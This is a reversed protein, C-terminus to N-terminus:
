GLDRPTVAAAPQPRPQSELFVVWFLEDPDTWLRTIGFGADTVLRELGHRDYKYSSETWITEGQAFPVACGGVQVVQDDLSRLHMEIRSEMSNWHAEHAFRDIDFTAALERNLRVLLNRNFRATVGAADDYARELTGADKVRDVGLIVAGGPGVTTRVGRLFSTAASPEFNGITSGPFFAVRRAAGPLTPLSVARTYDARIPHVVIGPYDSRLASAVRDLQEGSIDIPVYAVPAELGELLLRVKIGAGSGYEVLAVHPGALDVIEPLAHRLIGLETRTPYYEPLTTIEEFLRAGEADYFFKPSLKKPRAHLGALVEERMGASPSGSAM